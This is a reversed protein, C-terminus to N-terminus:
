AADGEDEGDVDDLDSEDDLENADLDDDDATPHEGTDDDDAEPAAQAIPPFRNSATEWFREMADAIKGATAEGIGRIMTIPAGDKSYDALHGLTWVNAGELSEIVKETLGLEKIPVDRWRTDTDPDYKLGISDPIPNGEADVAPAPKLPLRPTPNAFDDILEDLETRLGEYLKKQDQYRTKLSELKAKAAKCEGRKAFIESTEHADLTRETTATSESM